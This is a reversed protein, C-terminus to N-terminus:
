PAKEDILFENLSKCHTLVLDIGQLQRKMVNFREFDYHKLHKQYISDLLESLQQEKRLDREFNSQLGV